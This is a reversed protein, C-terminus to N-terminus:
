YIRFNNGAQSSNRSTVYSMHSRCLSCLTVQPLIQYTNSPSSIGYCLFHQPRRSTTGCFRTLSFFHSLERRQLVARVLTTWMGPHSSNDRCVSPPSPISLLRLHLIVMM